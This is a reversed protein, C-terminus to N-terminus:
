NKIYRNAVDRLRKRNEDQKLEEPLNDCIDRMFDYKKPKNETNTSNIGTLIRITEVALALILSDFVEERKLNLKMEGGKASSCARV